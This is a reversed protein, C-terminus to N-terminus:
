LLAKIKRMSISFLAIGNLVYAVANVLNINNMEFIM